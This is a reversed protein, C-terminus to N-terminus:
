PKLFKDSLAQALETIDKLNFDYLWDHKSWHVYGTGYKRTIIVTYLAEKPVDNVTAQTKKIEINM